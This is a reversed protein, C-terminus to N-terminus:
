LLGLILYVVSVALGILVSKKTRTVSFLFLCGFFYGVFGWVTLDGFTGAGIRSFFFTIWFLVCCTIAPAAKPSKRTAIGVIGTVLFLISVFLGFTGSLDNNSELANVVGTLFSQMFIVVSFIISFIGAVLKGTPWRGSLQSSTNAPVATATIGDSANLQSVEVSDNNTNGENTPVLAAGCKLCFKSNDDNSAGCKSCVM